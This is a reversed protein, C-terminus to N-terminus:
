VYRAGRPPGGIDWLRWVRNREAELMHLDYRINDTQLPSGALKAAQRLHYRQAELKTLDRKFLWGDHHVRMPPPVTCGTEDRGRDPMIPAYLRTM